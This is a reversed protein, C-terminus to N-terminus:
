INKEKESFPKEQKYVFIDMLVLNKKVGRLIAHLDKQMDEPITIKAIANKPAAKKQQVDYQDFDASTLGYFQKAFEVKRFLQGKKSAIKQLYFQQIKGSLDLALFVQIGGFESKQNVGHIYGIKQDKQYIEYLTYPVDINEYLGSFSDGLKAEVKKLLPEGGSKKLSLYYTKYNTSQPFIRKVDRDPENLDCGVAAFLNHTFIVLGMMLAIGLKINFM